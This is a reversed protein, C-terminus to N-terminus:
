AVARERGEWYPARLERKLVKGSANRPLCPVFDISKPLKFAAIRARAWNIVQESSPAEPGAVVIAKVEEGWRESPIGIVAVEVVGPCGALANEVEAPYINEGGSVIMDKVRDQVFYFGEANRYGADGTHLWGDRIAEASAQPNRWYGATVTDGRIALEGVVEDALPSGDPGLIAMEMGPWPKGCSRLLGGHHDSSALFSGSGASETMGYYQVFDCGFRAQGGLLVDESIPSAGYGISRMSSVDADSGSQLLANIMAPVLFTRTVRDASITAMVAGADFERHIIVHSGAALSAMIVNFGAVHFAPVAILVVDDIRYDFGPIKAAADLFAAYNADSLCVGKPLGTTGSTYLQLIDGGPAAPRPPPQVTGSDIRMFDPHDFGASVIRPAPDVQAVAERALPLMQETVILVPAQSQELIYAIEPASLRYNIPAFCADALMAGFAADFWHISNGGLWAVRQGAEIGLDRLRSTARGARGALDAYSFTHGDATVAPHLALRIAQLAPIDRVSRIAAQENM